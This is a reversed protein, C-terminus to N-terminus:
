DVGSLTDLLKGVGSFLEVDAGLVALYDFDIMKVYNRRSNLARFYFSATHTRFRPSLRVAGCFLEKSFRLSKVPRHGLLEMSQEFATVM